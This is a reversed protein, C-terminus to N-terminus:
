IELRRRIIIKIKVPVRAEGLVVEEVLEIPILGKNIPDFIVGLLALEIFIILHKRFRFKRLADQRRIRELVASIMGLLTYKKFKHDFFVVIALGLIINSKRLEKGKIGHISAFPSPNGIGKEYFFLVTIHYNLKELLELLDQLIYAALLGM